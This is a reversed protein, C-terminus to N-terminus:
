LCNIHKNKKQYNCYCSIICILFFRWVGDKIKFGISLLFVRVIEALIRKKDPVHYLHILNNQWNDQMLIDCVQSPSLILQM